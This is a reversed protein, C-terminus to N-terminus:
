EDESDKDDVDDDEIPVTDDGSSYAWAVQAKQEIKPLLEEWLEVNNFFSKAYGLKKGGINYTAGAQEIVGLAVALEM